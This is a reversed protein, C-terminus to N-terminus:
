NRTDDKDYWDLYTHDRIFTLAKESGAQMDFDVERLHKLPAKEWDYEQHCYVDIYTEADNNKFLTIHLQLKDGVLGYEDNDSTLRWSGESKRGDEHTKYCAIPNREWGHEVLVEEIYEEGEPITAAYQEEYATGVAYAGYPSIIPHLKPFLYRRLGEQWDDDEDLLYPPIMIVQIFERRQM